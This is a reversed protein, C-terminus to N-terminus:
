ADDVGTHALREVELDDHRDLVHGRDALHQWEVLLGAARGSAGVLAARDPGLDMRADQLQDPRVSRRDDEDVAAPQGLAQRQAEVLQGALVDDAGVVARERALLPQEDLLLELVAPQRRQDGRAAELQADVHARDVEDDLDFRGPRDRAPQLPDTPRTVLDTLRRLAHDEGLVTAVQELRATTM